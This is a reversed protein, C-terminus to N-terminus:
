SCNFQFLDFLWSGCYFGMSAM